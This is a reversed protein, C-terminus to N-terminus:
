INKYYKECIKKTNGFLLEHIKDPLNNLAFIVKNIEGDDDKFKIFNKNEKITKINFPLNYEININNNNFYNKITYYLYTIYYLM